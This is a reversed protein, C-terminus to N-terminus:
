GKGNVIATVSVTGATVAVKVRLKNYFVDTVNVLSSESGTFANAAPSALDEWNSGDGAGTADDDVFVVDGMAADLVIREELATIKLSTM